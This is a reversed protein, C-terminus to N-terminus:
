SPVGSGVRSLVVVFLIARALDWGPAAYHQLLGIEEHGPLQMSDICTLDDGCVGTARIWHEQVKGGPTYDVRLLPVAGCCLALRIVDMPAPILGCDIYSCIRIGLASLSGWVLENDANFGGHERLWDNLEGPDRWDADLDKLASAVATLL